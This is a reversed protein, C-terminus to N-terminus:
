NPNNLSQKLRHIKYTITQILPRLETNLEEHKLYGFDCSLILQNLLEITSSYAITLFHLKEKLHTRASGEAINSAVSVSCRRMQNTLGYQEETPFNKTKKYILNALLRADQWVDLKEFSYTKMMVYPCGFTHNARLYPHIKQHIHNTIIAM